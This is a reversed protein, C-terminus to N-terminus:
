YPHVPAYVARALSVSGPGHVGFNLGQNRAQKSMAVYFAFILEGPAGQGVFREPGLQVQLQSGTAQMQQLIRIGAM